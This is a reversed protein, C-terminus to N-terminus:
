DPTNGMWDSLNGTFDREYENGIADTYVADTIGDDESVDLRQKEDSSDDPSLLVSTMIGLIKLLM